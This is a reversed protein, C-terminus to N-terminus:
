FLGSRRKQGLATVVGQTVGTFYCIEKVSATGVQQLLSFVEQQKPSLKGGNWDPVLRVMRIFADGTRRFAHEERIIVGSRVLGLYEPADAQMGVRNLLSEERIPSGSQRLVAVLARETSSLERDPDLTGMSCVYSVDLHFGTPMMLRISDFYTCFCRGRVMRHPLAKKM